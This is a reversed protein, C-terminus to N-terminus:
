EKFNKMLEFFNKEEKKRMDAIRQCMESIKVTTKDSLPMGKQLRREERKELRKELLRLRAGLVCIKLASTLLKTKRM